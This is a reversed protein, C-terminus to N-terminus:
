VEEEQNELAQLRKEMEERDILDIVWDGDLIYQAGEIFAYYQTKRRIEIKDPHRKKYELAERLTKM